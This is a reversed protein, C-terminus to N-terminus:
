QKKNYRYIVFFLFSTTSVTPIYWFLIEKKIKAGLIYEQFNTSKNKYNNASSISDLLYVLFSRMAIFNNM